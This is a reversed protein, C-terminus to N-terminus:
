LSFTKTVRRWNSFTGCFKLFEDKTIENPNKVKTSGCWPNGTYYKGICTLQAEMKNSRTIMVLCNPDTWTCDFVDGVSYTEEELKELEKQLTAIDAKCQAIKDADM